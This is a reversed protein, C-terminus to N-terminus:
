NLDLRRERLDLRAVLLLGYGGYIPVIHGIKTELIQGMEGKPTVADFENANGQLLELGFTEAVLVERPQGRFLM